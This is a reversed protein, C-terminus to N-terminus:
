LRRDIITHSNRKKIILKLTRYSKRLPYPEIQLVALFSEDGDYPTYNAQVFRTVSAKDRWDVGKFGKWAEEFVSSAVNKTETM